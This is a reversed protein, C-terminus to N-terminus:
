ELEARLKRLARYVRGEVTTMPQDLAAAIEKLSLEAGFRLAIAEREEDSLMGLSRMVRDRGEVADLAPDADPALASTAVRELARAEAAARRGHDRLRNLAITYLWTRESARRRDFRARARFAAEFTDAMVDEALTRDGTRYVLFAFLREAHEAYLREFDGQRM